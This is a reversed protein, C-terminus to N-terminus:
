DSADDDERALESVSLSSSFNGDFISLIQLERFSLRVGRGAELADHVRSWIRMVETQWHDASEDPEEAGSEEDM